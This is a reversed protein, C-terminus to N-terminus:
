SSRITWGGYFAQIIALVEGPFAVRVIGLLLLLIGIAALVWPERSARIPDTVISQEVERAFALWTMFDGNQVILHRRLSDVFRNPRDPDPLGIYQMALSDGVRKVSDEASPYSTHQVALGMTAAQVVAVLSLLGALLFMRYTM